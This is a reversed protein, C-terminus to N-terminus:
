QKNNSTPPIPPPAFLAALDPRNGAEEWVSMGHCWVLTKTTIQRNIIMQKLQEKNYPGYQRGNIALLYNVEGPIPPSIQQIPKQFAQIMSKIGKGMVGAIQSGMSLAIGMNMMREMINM